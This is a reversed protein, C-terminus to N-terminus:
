GDQFYLFNHSKFYKIKVEPKYHEQKNFVCSSTYVTESCLWVIEIIVKKFIGEIYNKQRKDKLKKAVQAAAMISIWIGLAQVEFHNKLLHTDSWFLLKM